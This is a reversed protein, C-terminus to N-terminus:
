GAIALAAALILALYPGLRERQVALRDDGAGIANGHEIREVPPAFGRVRHQAREVRLPLSRQGSASFSRLAFSARAGMPMTNLILVGVLVAGHHEPV